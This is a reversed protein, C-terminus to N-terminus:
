ELMTVLLKMARSNRWPGTTCINRSCKLLRQLRYRTGKVLGSRGESARELEMSLKHLSLSFKPWPLASRKGKKPCPFQFPLSPKMRQGAGAAQRRSRLSFNYLTLSLPIDSEYSYISFRFWMTRVVSDAHWKAGRKPVRKTVNEKPKKRKVNIQLLEIKM